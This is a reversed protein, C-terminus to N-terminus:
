RSYDKIRIVGTMTDSVDRKAEKDKVKAYIRLTTDVDAHGVWDQISKIDKGQHVLISVCSSRLGHFTIEQPLDPIKKILKGFAKTPYDPYYLSGDAHKFIYDSDFYGNGCLKRNALEKERLRRFMSVQEDTLPYVRESSATKTTNARTITTGKTVTHNIRMTKDKFSVASWRLGLVEERRLGFFLTLYFLEYLEHDKAGDLFRQAEEYSFFEDDTNKDGAYRAALTKNIVAEKVPNYAILGEKQAQEMVAGFIVKIDKVTRPSAHHVEFLSDLFTEVTRVTIEKVKFLGLADKIRKIKYFYASYTTDAIERKKKQLYLDLYDGITISRDIPSINRTVLLRARMDVAKKVNEPTDQLSTSIWKSKTVKLGDKIVPQTIVIYLYGKKRQIGTAKRGDKKPRSM